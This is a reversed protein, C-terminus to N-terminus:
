LSQCSPPSPLSHIQHLPRISKRMQMKCKKLSAALSSPLLCLPHDAFRETPRTPSHLGVSSAQAQVKQREINQPAIGHAEKKNIPWHNHQNLSVLMECFSHTLLQQGIQSDSDSAHGRRRLFVNRLWSNILCRKETNINCLQIREERRRPEEAQAAAAAATDTFSITM